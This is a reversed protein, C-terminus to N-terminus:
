SEIKFEINALKLYNQLKTLAEIALLEQQGRIVLNTGWKGNNEFPYSGIDLEKYEKNLGELLEVIQSEGSNVLLIKTVFKAGTKLQPRIEEFMSRMISPVGAFVYVNEINFGPAGSIRNTILLAGQPIDAMKYSMKHVKRGIEQYRNDILEVARKNRELKIGFAKAVAAVTIDDHTPGIGGTTFIYDYKKRLADLADIIDVEVDRVVRVEALIIGLDSLQQALYQINQDQTKGSLIENGIVLTAAKINRKM